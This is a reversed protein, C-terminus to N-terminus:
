QFTGPNVGNYYAFFAECHRQRLEPRNGATINAPTCPEPISSYRPQQSTHLEVIAPARFSHTKNGRPQLGQFPAYQIGYTYATFWGNVTNNVR